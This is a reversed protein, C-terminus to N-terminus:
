HLNRTHKLQSPDKRFFYKALIYVRKAIKEKDEIKLSDNGAGSYFQSSFYHRICKMVKSM